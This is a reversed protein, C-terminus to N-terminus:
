ASGGMAYGTLIAAAGATALGFPPAVKWAAVSLLVFGALELVTSGISRRRRLFAALRRMPGM